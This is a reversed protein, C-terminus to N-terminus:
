AMRVLEQPKRLFTSTNGPIGIHKVRVRTYNRRRDIAVVTGTRLHRGKKTKCQVRDGIKVPLPREKKEFLSLLGRSGSGPKKESEIDSLRIPQKKTLKDLIWAGIPALVCLVLYVFLFVDIKTM